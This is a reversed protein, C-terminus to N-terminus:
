GDNKKNYGVRKIEWQLEIGSQAKVAAIIREGLTEIDSATATGDNDLFNCHQASMKAGGETMDAGGSEKILKWATQEPPNKFTSGATKIGQPQHTKRYEDNQTIQAIIEETSKKTTKLCAELIIWDEPFKSQRYAFHFDQNLVEFVEGLGSMVRAKELVQSLENGFCGANSRFAGGITGPISCLFELGGINNQPLIKKLSFNVLGGGCFLKDDVIRWQAFHANKLKIVVGEIGGDRVLLNSGGGLMFFPLGQPKHRMFYQLDAEDEPEFMVEAVGGVGLWTHHSMPENYKYIGRVKPLSNILKTNM